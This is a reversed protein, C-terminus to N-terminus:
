EEEGGNDIIQAENKQVDSWATDLAESYQKNDNEDFDDEVEVVIQWVFTVQRM